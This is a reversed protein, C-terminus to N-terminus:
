SLEGGDGLLLVSNEEHEESDDSLSDGVACVAVLLGFAGNVPRRRLRLAGFPFRSCHWGVGAFTLDVASGM